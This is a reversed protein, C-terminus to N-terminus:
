RRRKRSLRRAARRGDVTIRVNGAASVSAIFPGPQQSCRLIKPLARRFSEAQETSSMGGATLIFLRVRGVIVAEHEITRKRIQKDKTLVSVDPRDSLTRLWEDDSARAPFLEKHLIVQAGAQRLAAPVAHRGLCEDILLSVKRRRSSAASRKTSKRRRPTM